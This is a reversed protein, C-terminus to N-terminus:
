LCVLDHVSAIRCEAFPEIHGVLAREHRATAGSADNDCRSSGRLDAADGVQQASGACRSGRQLQAEGSEAPPDCEDHQRDAGDHERGPQQLALRRQQHEHGRQAQRDRGHRLRERCDNREREAEAGPLEPLLVREHSSQGRDLGEPGDRVDTRVLGARKGLIAHRERGDIGGAPLM